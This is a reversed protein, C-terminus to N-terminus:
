KNYPGRRPPPERLPDRKEEELVVRTNMAAFAGDLSQIAAEIQKQEAMRARPRQHEAELSLSRLSARIQQYRGAFNRMWLTSDGAVRPGTYQGKPM